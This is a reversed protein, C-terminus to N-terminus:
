ARNGGNNYYSKYKAPSVGVVKKFQVSFNSISSFGCSIATEAVSVNNRLMIQARSIRYNMLYKMPSIRVNKKFLVCFHSRCLGVNEAIQSIAINDYYNNKIFNIAKKIATDNSNKLTSLNDPNFSLLLALLEYLLSQTEVLSSFTKQLLTSKIKEFIESIKDNSYNIVPRNTTFGILKLFEKANVGDFGIWYYNYPDINDSHYALVTDKFLCFMDGKKVIYKKGEIEYYGKGDIMYQLTYEPKIIPGLTQSPDKEQVGFNVLSIAIDSIPLDDEFPKLFLRM